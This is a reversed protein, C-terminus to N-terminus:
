YIEKRSSIRYRTYDTGAKVIPTGVQLFGNTATPANEFNTALTEASAEYRGNVVDSACPELNEQLIVPDCTASLTFSHLAGGGSIAGLLNQARARALIPVSVAFKNIADAGENAVSSVTVIPFQGIKTDITVSTIMYGTEITGYIMSANKPYAQGLQLSLTMNGVVMYKVTPNLWTPGIADAGAAKGYHRTVIHPRDAGSESEFPILSASALGFYDVVDGFATEWSPTAFKDSAWTWRTTSSIPLGDILWQRFRSGTPILSSSPTPLAGIAADFTVSKPAIVGGGEFTLTYSNAIWRAYITLDRSGFGTVIAINGDADIVITGGTRATYYGAFTYGTRTPPTVSSIEDTLDDDSYVASTEGNSFIAGSGGSGGNDDLVTVFSKRTWQAYWTTNASTPAASGDVILGDAGFKQEGNTAAGFIGACVNCRVTPLAVPHASVGTEDTATNDSYYKDYEVGYFIQADGAQATAVNLAGVTASTANVNVNITRLQQWIAYASASPPTAGSPSVTALKEFDLTGDRAVLKDSTAATSKFYGLFVYGDRDPPALTSIASSDGYEALPEAYWDGSSISRYIADSGGTGSAKNLLLRWSTQSWQCYITLATTYEAIQLAATIDGAPEVYQTQGAAANFCGLFRYCENTPLGINTIQETASSDSYFLGNVTDAYLTSFPLAANTGNTGKNLTVTCLGVWRAYVSKSVLAVSGTPSFSLADLNAIDLVGDKDAYYTATAAGSANTVKTGTFGGFVKSSYAPLQASTLATIETGASCLYDTYYTGTASIPRYIAAIGGDGISGGNADLAIKYSFYEGRPNITFTTQAKGRIRLEDLINGAGDIYQDGSKAPTTSVYQPGNGAYCGSYTWCEREALVASSYEDTQQQDLYFLETAPNYYLKAPAGKWYTSTITITRLTATGGTITSTQAQFINLTKAALSGTVATSATNFLEKTKAAFINGNEDVCRWYPNTIGFGLFTYSARTPLAIATIANGGTEADYATGNEGVDPDFWFAATGGSWGSQSLTVKYRAM